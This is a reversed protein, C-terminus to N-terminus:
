QAKCKVFCMVYDPLQEKKKRRGVFWDPPVAKMARYIQKYIQMATQLRIDAITLPDNRQIDFQVCFDKKLIPERKVLFNQVEM